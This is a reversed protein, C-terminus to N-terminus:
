AASSAPWRDCFSRAAVSSTSCAPSRIHAFFGNQINVRTCISNRGRQLAIAGKIIDYRNICCACFVKKFNTLRLLMEVVYGCEISYKANSRSGFWRRGGYVPYFERRSAFAVHSNLLFRMLYCKKILGFKFQLNPNYATMFHSIRTPGAVPPITVPRM